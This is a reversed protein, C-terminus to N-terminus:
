LIVQRQHGLRQQRAVPPGVAALQVKEGVGLGAGGRDSTECAWLRFGLKRAKVGQGRPQKVGEIGRHHGGAGGARCANRRRGQARGCDPPRERRPATQRPEQARLEAIWAQALQKATVGGIHASRGLRRWRHQRQDPLGLRAPDPNDFAPHRPQGCGKCVKRACAPSLDAQIGGHGLHQLVRAARNADSQGIAALNRCLRNNEVAVRGGQVRAKQSLGGRLGHRCLAHRRAAKRCPDPGKPCGGLPWAGGIQRMVVDKEAGVWRGLEPWDGLARHGFGGRKIDAGLIAACRM